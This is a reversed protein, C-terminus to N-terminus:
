LPIKLTISQIYNFSWDNSADLGMLAANSLTMYYFLLIIMTMISFGIIKKKRLAIEVIKAPIAFLIECILM